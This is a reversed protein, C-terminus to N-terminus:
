HGERGVFMTTSRHAADFRAVQLSVSSLSAAYGNALPHTDRALKACEVVPHGDVAYVVCGIDMGAPRFQGGLALSGVSKFTSVAPSRPQKLTAPERWAHIVDTKGAVRRYIKVNDENLRFTYTARTSTTTHLCAIGIENVPGGFVCVIDTRAILVSQGPGLTIPKATARAAAASAGAGAALLCCSALAVSRTVNSPKM